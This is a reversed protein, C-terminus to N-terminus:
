AAINADLTAGQGLGVVSVGSTTATKATLAQFEKFLSVFKDMYRLKEDHHYYKRLEALLGDAANPAVRLGSMSFFRAIDKKSELSGSM